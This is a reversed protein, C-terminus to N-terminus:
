TRAVTTFDITLYSPLSFFDRWRKRTWIRGIRTNEFTDTFPVVRAVRREFISSHFEQGTFRYSSNQPWFGEVLGVCCHLALACRCFARTHVDMSLHPESWSSSRAQGSQPRSALTAAPPLVDALVNAAHTADRTCHRYPLWFHVLGAARQRSRPAPAVWGLLHCHAAWSTPTGTPNFLGAQGCVHGSRDAYLILEARKLSTHGCRWGAPLGDLAASRSACTVRQVPGQSAKKGSHLPRKLRYLHIGAVLQVVFTMWAYAWLRSCCVARAAGVVVCANAIM